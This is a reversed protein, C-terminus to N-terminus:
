QEVREIGVLVDHTRGQAICPVEGDGELVGVHGGEPGLRLAQQRKAGSLASRDSQGLAFARALDVPDVLQLILAHLEAGDELDIFILVAVGNPLEGM